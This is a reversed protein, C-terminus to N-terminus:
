FVNSLVFAEGHAAASGGAVFPDDNMPIVSVNGFGGTGATKRYIFVSAAPGNGTRTFMVHYEGSATGFPQASLTPSGYLRLQETNLPGASWTSTSANWSFEVWQLRSAPPTPEWMVLICNRTVSTATLCAVVPTALSSFGTGFAASFVGGNSAQLVVQGSNARFSHLVRDSRPDYASSVGAVVTDALTGSAPNSQVTTFSGGGIARSSVAARRTWRRADNSLRAAHTVAFDTTSSQTAGITGSSLLLHPVVLTSFTMSQWDWRFVQPVAVGRSYGVLVLSTSTNLGSSAAIHGTLNLSAPTLEGWSGSVREFVRVGQWPVVGYIDRLGDQDDDSLLDRAQATSAPRMAACGDAGSPCITSYAPDNCDQPHALGVCHGIEHLLSGDLHAGGTGALHNWWMNGPTWPYSRQIFVVDAFPSAQTAACHTPVVVIAGPVRCNNVPDITTACNPDLWVCSSLNQRDLWLRPAKAHKTENYRAIVRDLTSEMEEATYPTQDSHFLVSALDQHYIVRVLTEPNEAGPITCYADANSASAVVAAVIVPLVFTRTRM